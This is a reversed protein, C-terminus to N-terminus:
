SSRREPLPDEAAPMVVRYKPGEADLRIVGLLEGGSGFVAAELGVASPGGDLVAFVGADIRGGNRFRAEIDAGDFGIARLGLAAADEPGLRRLDTRPDFAEPDVADEVRFPGIALRELARLHGRSGCAAAIDRALSRIYTGSSCRVEMLADSGDYSILELSFIQVTRERVQPEGGELAIRYARKGGILVASYAPPRQLISGRFAPLADRLRSESPPPAVAIVKGEPDLTETESGFAVLGRYLKEGSMVYPSLRSYSGALAVLLGRAFRDLTGAHGVKGSGVARKVPALAGFSTIGEPKRLLALGSRPRNGAPLTM